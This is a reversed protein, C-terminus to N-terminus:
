CNFRRTFPDCRVTVVGAVFFEQLARYAIITMLAAQARHTLGLPRSDTFGACIKRSWASNDFAGRDRM